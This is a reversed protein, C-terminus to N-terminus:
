RHKPIDKIQRVVVHNSMQEKM